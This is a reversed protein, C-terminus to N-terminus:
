VFTMEMTGLVKIKSPEIMASFCGSQYFDATDGQKDYSGDKALRKVFVHHGNPYPDRGSSGGDIKTNIVVFTGGKFCFKESSLERQSIQAHIFKTIAKNDAKLGVRRFANHIEVAVSHIDIENYADYKENVTVDHHCKENSLAMNQYVYREPVDTYVKHGTRLEVIDGVKLM